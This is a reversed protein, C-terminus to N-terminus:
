LRKISPPPRAYVGVRGRVKRLLIKACKLRIVKMNPLKVAM